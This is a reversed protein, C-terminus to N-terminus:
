GNDVPEENETQTFFVKKERDWYQGIGAPRGHRKEDNGKEVEELSYTQIWEGGLREELWTKVNEKKDDVIVINVVKLSNDLQAWTKM